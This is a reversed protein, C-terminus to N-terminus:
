KLNSKYVTQNRSNKHKKEIEVWIKVAVFRKHDVSIANMVM